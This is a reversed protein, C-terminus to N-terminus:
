KKGKILLALSSRNIKGNQTLPLTNVLKIESPIMYYPLEKKLYEYLKKVDVNEEQSEIFAILKQNEGDILLVTAVMNNHSYKRIYSDIEELEIRHGLYKVQNDLRGM